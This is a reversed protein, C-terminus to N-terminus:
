FTYFIIETSTTTPGRPPIWPPYRATAPSTTTICLHESLLPRASAMIFLFLICSVWSTAHSLLGNCTWGIKKQVHMCDRMMMHKEARWYQGVANNALRQLFSHTIVCPEGCICPFLASRARYSSQDTESKGM